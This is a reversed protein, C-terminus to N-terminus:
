DEKISNYLIEINERTLHVVGGDDDRVIYLVDNDIAKELTPCCGSRCLKIKSMNEGIQILDIDVIIAVYVVLNL